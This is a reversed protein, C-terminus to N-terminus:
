QTIPFCENIEASAVKPPFTVTPSRQKMPNPATMRSPKFMASRLKIPAPATTIDSVSGSPTYTPFGALRILFDESSTV